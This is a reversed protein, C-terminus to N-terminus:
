PHMNRKTACRLQGGDVPRRSACFAGGYVCRSERGVTGLTCRPCRTWRSGAVRSWCRWSRSQSSERRASTRCVASTWHGCTLGVGRLGGGYGEGEAARGRLVPQMRRRLNGRAALWPGRTGLRSGHAALRSGHVTLRSGHAALCWSRRERERSSPDAAM